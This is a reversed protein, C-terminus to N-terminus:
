ANTDHPQGALARGAKHTPIEGGFRRREQDLWKLLRGVSADHFVRNAQFAFLQAESRDLAGIEAIRGISDFTYLLSDLYREEASGVFRQPESGRRTFTSPEGQADFEIKFEEYDIDYYLKRVETDSFYRDTADLLFQARRVKTNERLQRATFWLGVAAALFGLATIIDGLGFDPDWRVM